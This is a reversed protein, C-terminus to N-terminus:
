NLAHTSANNEEKTIKAKQGTKYFISQKKIASLDM